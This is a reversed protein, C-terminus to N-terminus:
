LDLLNNSFNFFLELASFWLGRFKILELCLEFLVLCIKTQSILNSLSGDFLFYKIFSDVLKKIYTKKINFKNNTNNIATSVAIATNVKLLFLYSYIIWTRISYKSGNGRWICVVWGMMLKYITLISLFQSFALAFLFNISSKPWSPEALLSTISPLFLNCLINYQSLFIYKCKLMLVEDENMIYRGM